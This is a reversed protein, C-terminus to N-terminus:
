ENLQPGSFKGSEPSVHLFTKGDLFKEVGRGGAMITSLKKIVSKM